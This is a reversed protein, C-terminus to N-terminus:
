GAIEAFGAPTLIFNMRIDSAGAPVDAVMQEEFAIGCKVARVGALLRDYFGRGRGLRRGLWDFAVGPVLVLDLRDPSIEACHTAPERIGFQGPTIEAQPNRVRCALYDNNTSDFRPLAVTKGAALTEGLLPWLDPEDPLPAFFLVSGANKWIAQEKLQDRIQASLAGRAAPSIKQRAGRIQKRLAAKAAQIDPQM